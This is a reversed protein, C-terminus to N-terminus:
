DKSGSERPAWSSAPLSTAALASRTSLLRPRSQRVAGTSSSVTGTPSDTAVAGGNVEVLVTTTADPDSHWETAAEESEDSPSVLPKAAFEASGVKLVEGNDSALAPACRKWPPPRM